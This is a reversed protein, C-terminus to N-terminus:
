GAPGVGKLSSAHKRAVTDCLTVKMFGAFYKQGFAIIEKPLTKPVTGRTNELKTGSSREFVRTPFLRFCTHKRMLANM